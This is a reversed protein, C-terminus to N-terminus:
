STSSIRPSSSEFSVGLSESAREGAPLDAHVIGTGSSVDCRDGEALRVAALSERDRRIMTLSSPGRVVLM